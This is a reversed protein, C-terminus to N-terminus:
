PAMQIWSGFCTGSDDPQTLGLHNKKVKNGEHTLNLFFLFALPDWDWIGYIKKLIGLSWVHM